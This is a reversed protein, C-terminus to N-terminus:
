ILAPESGQVKQRIVRHKNFELLKRLKTGSNWGQIHRADKGGEQRQHRQEYIM